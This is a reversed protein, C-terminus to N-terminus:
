YSMESPLSFNTFSASSGARKSFIRATAKRFL